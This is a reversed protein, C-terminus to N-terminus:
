LVVNELIEEILNEPTLVLGENSQLCYKQDTPLPLWPCFPIGYCIDCSVLAKLQGQFVSGTVWGASESCSLSVMASPLSQSPSSADRHRRHLIGGNHCLLREPADRRVLPPQMVAKSCYICGSHPTWSSELFSCFYLLESFSIFCTMDASYWIYQQRCSRALISNYLLRFQPILM